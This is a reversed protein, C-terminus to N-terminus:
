APVQHWLAAVSAQAILLLIVPILCMRAISIVAPWGLGLPQPRAGTEDNM